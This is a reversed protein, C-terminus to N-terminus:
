HWTASTGTRATRQSLDAAARVDTITDTDADASMLLCEGGGPAHKGGGYPHTGGLVMIRTSMELFAPLMQADIVTRLQQGGQAQVHELACAVLECRLRRVLKPNRASPAVFYRTAEFIHSGTVAHGDSFLHPFLDAALSGQDTRNIRVSGNIFGTDALDIVYTADTGDYQDIELGNKRPLSWGRGEIFVEHRRQHLQQFLDAYQPQQQGQYIHIM